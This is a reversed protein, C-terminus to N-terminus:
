QVINYNSPFNSRFLFSARGGSGLNIFQSSWLWGMHLYDEKPCFRFCGLARSIFRKRVLKDHPRGVREQGSKEEWGVQWSGGKQQGSTDPLGSTIVCPFLLHLPSLAASDKWEFTGKIIPCLITQHNTEVLWKSTIKSTCILQQFLVPNEDVGEYM